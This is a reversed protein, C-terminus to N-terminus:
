RWGAETGNGAGAGIGGLMLGLGLEMRLLAQPADRGQARLAERSSPCNGAERPIKEREPHSDRLLARSSGPPPPQSPNPLPLM